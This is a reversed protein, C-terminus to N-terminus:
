ALNAPWIELGVRQAAQWLQKDFTIFTIPIDLAKQWDLATALHIADFGRMNYNWALSDATDIIQNTVTLLRLNHWENRFRDLVTTAVNKWILGTRLGRAISASFEPKAIVSVGIIQTQEKVLMRLSSSYQESIYLKILASTDLYTIM